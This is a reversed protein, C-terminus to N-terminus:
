TIVDDHVHELLRALLVLRPLHLERPLDHVRIGVVVVVEPLLRPSPTVGNVRVRQRPSPTSDVEVDDVCVRPILQSVATKQLGHGGVGDVPYNM